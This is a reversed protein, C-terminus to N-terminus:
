VFLDLCIWHNPLSPWLHNACINRLKPHSFMPHNGWILRNWLQTLIRITSDHQLLDLRGLQTKWRPPTHSAWGRHSGPLWMANPHSKLLPLFPQSYGLFVHELSIIWLKSISFFSSFSYNQKTSPWPILFQITKGWSLWLKTRFSSSSCTTKEGPLIWYMTM